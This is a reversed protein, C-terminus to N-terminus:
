DHLVCSAAGVQGLGPMVSELDMEFADATCAGAGCADDSDCAAFCSGDGSGAGICIGSACDADSNCADEGLAGGANAECTMEVQAVKLYHAKPVCAEGYECTADSTCGSAAMRGEGTIPALIDENAGNEDDNWQVQMELTKVMETALNHDGDHLYFKGGGLAGDQEKPGLEPNGQGVQLNLVQGEITDSLSGVGIECFTAYLSGSGFGIADSIAEGVNDCNVINLLVEDLSDGAIGEPLSPFVVENMAIMIIAGYRLAFLHPDTTVEFRESQETTPKHQALASYETAVPAYNTDDLQVARRACAVDGEDCGLNWTFVVDNWQESVNFVDDTTSPTLGFRAGVEFATVTQRIDGGVTTVTNYDEGFQNVLATELINQALAWTTFTNPASSVEDWTAVRETGNDDIHVFSFGMENDLAILAQYVAYGAPDSLVATTTDVYTEYPEPLANGVDVAMLVDYDGDLISPLQELTATVTATSGGTIAGQACGMAILDGRENYGSVLATVAHGHDQDTFTRNGPVVNFDAAFTATPVTTMVELADCTPVNAAPARYVLVEAHDVPIRTVSNVAVVLNGYPNVRVSVPVNVATDVLDASATVTADGDVSGAQFIVTAKGNADTTASGVNLTGGSGTMTFMVTEGALKRGGETTLTFDLAQSQTYFLEVPVAGTYSLARPEPQPDVNPEEEGEEGGPGTPLDNKGDDTPAPKEACGECGVTAAVSLSLIATFLIKTARM